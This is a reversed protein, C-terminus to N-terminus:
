AVVKKAAGKALGQEFRTILDNWSLGLRKRHKDLSLYLDGSLRIFAQPEDHKTPTDTCQHCLTGPTYPFEIQLLHGCSDCDTLGLKGTNREESQLWAMFFMWTGKADEPTKAKAVAFSLACVDEMCSDCWGMRDHEDLEIENQGCLACQQPKLEM